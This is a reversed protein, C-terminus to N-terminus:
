YYRKGARLTVVGVKGFLNIWAVLANALKNKTFYSL